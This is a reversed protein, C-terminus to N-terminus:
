LFFFIKNELGILLFFLFKEIFSSVVVLIWVYVCKYVSVIQSRVNLKDYANVPDYLALSFLSVSQCAQSYNNMTFALLVKIPLSQKIAENREIKNERQKSVSGNSFLM